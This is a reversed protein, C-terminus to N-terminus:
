VDEDEYEYPALEHQELQRAGAIEFCDNVFSEVEVYDNDWGTVRAAERLKVLFNKDLKLKLRAIAEHRKM